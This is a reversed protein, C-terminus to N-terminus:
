IYLLLENIDKVIIDPKIESFEVDDRKTEGSLVLVSLMGADKALKIDTYIRDGVIVSDRKNLHSILELSPKGFIKDPFRGSASLISHIFTGIDPVYGEETPCVMDSHTAFYPIGKNLLLSATRLKDYTIETDYTLVVADPNNSSFKFGQEKFYDFVCTNALLFINKLGKSNLHKITADTSLLINKPTIKLNSNNFFTLHQDPTKSSNNTMIYVQKGFTTLKTALEKAGNLIKNGISLTGDKDLLFNTKLKLETLKKNFLLEAKHLDEFNDIEYWKMGNIDLPKAILEKRNLLKQLMVETWVDKIGEKEVMRILENRIIRADSKSFKYVDISCGYGDEITKSIDIIEKNLDLKIKMSEEDYMGKEVAIATGEVNCLNKIIRSDFVVDGNMLITEDNLSSRAYYLSLMNNIPNEEVSFKVSPYKNRCFSIIQNSMYGVCVTIDKIGNKLLAEIQYQIIPKGNVNVLAKPKKETIGALRSGKGAALIIAKMKKTQLGV